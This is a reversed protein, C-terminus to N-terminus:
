LEDRVMEMTLMMCVLCTEGEGSGVGGDALRELRKEITMCELLSHYVVICMIQQQPYSTLM